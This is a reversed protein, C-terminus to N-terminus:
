DKPIAWPPPSRTGWASFYENGRRIRLIEVTVQTGNPGTVLPTPTGIPAELVDKRPKPDEKNVVLAVRTWGEGEIFPQAMQLTFPSIVQPAPQPATKNEVEVATAVYTNTVSVIVTNTAWAVAVVNNTVHSIVEVYNTQTVPHSAVATTGNWYGMAKGDAWVTCVIAVIAVIALVVLPWEKKVPERVQPPPTPPVPPPPTPTPVPPSPTVPTPVPTPAAPKKVSMWESWDGGGAANVGQVAFYTVEGDLLNAPIQFSTKGVKEVIQHAGNIAPGYKVNYEKCFWLPKWVLLPGNTTLIVEVVPKGKPLNSPTLPRKKM